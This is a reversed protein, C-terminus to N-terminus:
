GQGESWEQVSQRIIDQIPGPPIEDVGGYIQSGNIIQLDGDPGGIVRLVEPFLGPRNARLEQLRRQLILDISGAVSIAPPAPDDASKSVMERAQKSMMMRSMFPMNRVKARSTNARAEEDPNSSFLPRGTTPDIALGPPIPRNFALDPQTARADHYPSAAQIPPPPQSPPASDFPPLPLSDFSPTPLGALSGENGSLSIRGGGGSSGNEGIKTLGTTSPPPSYSAPGAGYPDLPAPPTVQELPIQLAAAIPSLEEAPVVPSVTVPPVPTPAVQFPNPAPATLAPSFSEGLSDIQYLDLGGASRLTVQIHAEPLLTEMWGTWLLECATAPSEGAAQAAKKLADFPMLRKVEVQLRPSGTPGAEVPKIQGEFGRPGFVLGFYAKLMEAADALGDAQKKGLLALLTRMEVKGFASRVRSNIKSAEAPGYVAGTRSLWQSDWSYMLWRLVEIGKSQDIEYM